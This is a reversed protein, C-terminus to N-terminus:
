SKLFIKCTTKTKTRKRNKEKCSVMKNENFLIEGHEICSLRALRITQFSHFEFRVNHMDERIGVRIQSTM